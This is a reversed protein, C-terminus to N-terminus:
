TIKTWGLIFACFKNLCWSLGPVYYLSNVFGRLLISRIRDPMSVPKTWKEGMSVFSLMMIEDVSFLGLNSVHKQGDVFANAMKFFEAPPDYMAPILINLEIEKCLKYAASYGGCCINNRDKIGLLYGIWRWFYVYDDLDTESCKIGFGSPYMIIAGMFGCQVLSMDYQSIWIKNSKQGNEATRKVMFERANNHIRRVSRVSKGAMSLKNWVDGYHWKVVHFVTRMYRIMSDKPISSKGTAVLVDLLNNVSLGCVLSFQMALLCSIAHNRFFIQGRHFKQQDFDEPIEEGIGDDYDSAGQKLDELCCSVHTEEVMGKNQLYMYFTIINKTSYVKKFFQSM